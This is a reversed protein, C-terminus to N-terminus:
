DLLILDSVAFPGRLSRVKVEREMEFTERSAQDEVQFALRYRGPAVNLSHTSLDSLQGARTAAFSEAQVERDWFRSLVLQRPRGREDVSYLEVTVTYSARFGAATSLFRLNAYPIRAYLDLRVRGDADAARVTVADVAFEPLAQGAAPPVSLLSLLLLM